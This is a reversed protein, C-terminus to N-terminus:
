TQTLLLARGTPAQKCAIGYRFRERSRGRQGIKERRGITPFPEPWSARWGRRSSHARRTPVPLREAAITGTAQLCAGVGSVWRDCRGRAFDHHSQM